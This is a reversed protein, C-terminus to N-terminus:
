PYRIRPDEPQLHDPWAPFDDPWDWFENTAAVHGLPEPRRPPRDFDFVHEYNHSRRIRPTLYPLDWNDSIFRLPASFEAFADDVYGKKAYPSIVLM